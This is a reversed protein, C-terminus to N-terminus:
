KRSSWLWLLTHSCEYFGFFSAGQFFLESLGLCCILFCVCRKTSFPGYLWLLWTLNSLQVLFIATHWREFSNTSKFQLAPSSDQPDRPCCPPWVLSGQFFYVRFIWQFSQHPLEWVKAVQYLSSVWQFLSQPQTLNLTLPSLPLLSHSPQITDGVSHIHTQAFEPSPSLSAQCSATWPTLCSKSVSRCCNNTDPDFFSIILYLDLLIYILCIHWLSYFETSLFGLFFLYISFYDM